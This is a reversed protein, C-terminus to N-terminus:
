RSGHPPPSLGVRSVVQVNILFMEYPTDKCHTASGREATVVLHVMGDDITITCPLEIGKQTLKRVMQALTDSIDTRQALNAIRRYSRKTETTAATM